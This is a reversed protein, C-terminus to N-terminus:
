RYEEPVKLKIVPQPVRIECWSDDGVLPIALRLLCPEFFYSTYIAGSGDSIWGRAHLRPAGQIIKQNTKALYIGDDRAIFREDPSVVEGPYNKPLATYEINNLILFQEVEESDVGPLDSKNFTFNQEINTPFESMLVITTGYNKTLYIENAQRLTDALLDLNPKGDIYANTQWFRFTQIPYRKGTFLEVIFGDMGEQTFALEDTLLSTVSQIPTKQATELDMLYIVNGSRDERVLLLRGSPSLDVNNYRCASFLIEAEKPYRAPESAPPCKCQFYHQLLLSSRGWLGWCYSFYLLPPLGILLTFCGIWGRLRRQKISNTSRM